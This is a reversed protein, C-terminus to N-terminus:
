KGVIFQLTVQFRMAPWHKASACGFESGCCISLFSTWFSICPFSRLWGRKKPMVIPSSASIMFERYNKQSVTSPLVYM